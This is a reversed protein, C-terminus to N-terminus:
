KKIHQALYGFLSLAAQAVAIVFPLDAALAAYIEVAAQRLIVPIGM